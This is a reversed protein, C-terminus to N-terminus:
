IADDQCAPCQGTFAIECTCTDDDRLVYFKGGTPVDHHWITAAILEPGVSYRLRWEGRVTIASLIEKANKATFFGSVSGGWLPFGDVVFDGGDRVFDAVTDTWNELADEWCTGFCHESPIENDYGVGDEWLLCQCENTIEADTTTFENTDTTM